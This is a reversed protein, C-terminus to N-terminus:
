GCLTLLLAAQTIVQTEEKIQLELEDSGAWPGRAWKGACVPVCLCLDCCQQLQCNACPAIHSAQRCGVWASEVDTVCGM